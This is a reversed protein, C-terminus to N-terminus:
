MEIMTPKNTLKYDENLVSVNYVDYSKFQYHGFSEHIHGSIILKLNPWEDYNLQNYLSTSGVHEGKDDWCGKEDDWMMQTVVDGYGHVPGHVMLINIDRPIMRWMDALEEEPLMFAWNGYKNSYPSGWIKVDQDFGNLDGLGPIEIWSNDLYMWPLDHGISYKTGLATQLVFDHNGGVGVVVRAPASRLWSSFKTRLWNAQQARDYDPCVDGGVLLLDCEPIDPLHGHLDSVAIIQM